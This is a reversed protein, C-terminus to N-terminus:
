DEFSSDDAGFISSRNLLEDFPSYDDGYDVDRGDLMPGDHIKKEIAELYPNRSDRDRDLDREMEEWYYREMEDDYEKQARKASSLFRHLNKKVFEKARKKNMLWLRPNYFHVNGTDIKKVFSQCMLLNMLGEADVVCGRPIGHKIALAVALQSGDGYSLWHNKKAYKPYSKSADEFSLIRQYDINKWSKIKITGKGQSVINEVHSINFSYKEGPLIGSLDDATTVLVFSNPGNARIGQVTFVSPYLHDRYMKGIMPSVTIQTGILFHEPQFKNGKDSASLEYTYFDPSVDEYKEVIQIGKYMREVYEVILMRMGGFWRPAGYRVFQDRTFKSYAQNDFLKPVAGISILNLSSDPDAKDALYDEKLMFFTKTFDRKFIQVIEKDLAIAVNLGVVTLLKISM